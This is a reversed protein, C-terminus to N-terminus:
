GEFATGCIYRHTRGSSVVPDHTLRARWTRVSGPTVSPCPETMGLSRLRTGVYHACSSDTADRYLLKSLTVRSPPM